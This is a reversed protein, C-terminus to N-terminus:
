VPMSGHYRSSGIITGSQRDVFAFAGASAIADDFFKRFMPEQYRDRAPHVEWILPDSAAAYLAPWDSKELPRIIVTQGELVPQLDPEQTLSGNQNETPM